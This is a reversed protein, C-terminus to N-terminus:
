TQSLSLHHLIIGSTMSPTQAVMSVDQIARLQDGNKQHLELHYTLKRFQGITVKCEAFPCQFKYSDNKSMEELGLAKQLVDPLKASPNCSKNWHARLRKKGKFHRGCKTCKERREQLKAMLFNKSALFLVTLYRGGSLVM